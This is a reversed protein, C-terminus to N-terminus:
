KNGARPSLFVIIYAVSGICFVAAVWDGTRMFMYASFIAMALAILLGIIRAIDSM